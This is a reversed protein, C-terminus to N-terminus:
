MRIRGSEFSADVTSAVVKVVELLDGVKGVSLCHGFDILRSDSSALGGRLAVGGKAGMDGYRDVAGLLRLEEKFRENDLESCGTVDRV